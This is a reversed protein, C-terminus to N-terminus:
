QTFEVDRGAFWSKSRKQQNRINQIYEEDSKEKIGLVYKFFAWM